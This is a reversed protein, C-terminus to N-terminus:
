LDFIDVCDKFYSFPVLCNLTSKIEDTNTYDIQLIKSKDRQERTYAQFAERFDQFTVKFVQNSKPAFVLLWKAKSRVSWGLKVCHETRATHNIRSFEFLMNGTTSLWWDSKIEATASRGNTLDIAIDIEQDQMERDDRLDVIKHVGKLNNIWNIIIEEANSGIEMYEGDYSRVNTKSVVAHLQEIKPM